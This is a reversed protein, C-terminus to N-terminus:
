DPALLADQQGPAPGPNPYGQENINLPLNTQETRETDEIANNYPDLVQKDSTSNRAFDGLKQPPLSETALLESIGKPSLTEKSLADHALPQESPDIERPM